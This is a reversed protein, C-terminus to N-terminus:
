QHSVLGVERGPQGQRSCNWLDSLNTSIHWKDIVSKQWVENLCEKLNKPKNAAVLFLLLLNWQAKIHPTLSWYTPFSWLCRSHAMILSWQALTYSIHRFNLTICFLFSQFYQKVFKHLPLDSGSNLIIRWLIAARRKRIETLFCKWMQFSLLRVKGSNVGDAHQFMHNKQKPFDSCQFSSSLLM